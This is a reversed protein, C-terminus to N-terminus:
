LTPLNPNNPNENYGSTSQQLIIGYARGSDTVKALAGNAILFKNM